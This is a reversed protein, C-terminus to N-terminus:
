ENVVWLWLGQQSGSVSPLRVVVGRKIMLNLPGIVANRAIKRQTATDLPYSFRESIHKVLEGSSVPRRCEKLVKIIERKLEGHGGEMKRPM